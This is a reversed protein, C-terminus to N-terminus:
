GLETVLAAIRAARAPDPVEVPMRARPSCIGRAALATKVGGVGSALTARDLDEQARRGARADAGAGEAIRAALRMTTVPFASALGSIAGAAGDAVAAALGADTGCLLSADPAQAAYAAVQLAAAGSLKAGVMGPLRLVEALLQPSMVFGTRETFLYAYVERAGATVAAAAVQRFYDLVERGDAELYYPTIAAVRRAGAAVAGATLRVAQRASAAGVHAIVREPGGVGLAVTILALREDDDLAPFEGTTGAVLLGDLPPGSVPDLLKVFLAKAADLDLDGADTFPSPVAALVQPTM